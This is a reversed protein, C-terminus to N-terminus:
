ESATETGGNTGRNEIGHKALLERWEEEPGMMSYNVGVINWGLRKSSEIQSEEWLHAVYRSAEDTLVDLGTMMMSYRDLELFLEFNERPSYHVPCCYGAECQPEDHHRERDRTCRERVHGIVSLDFINEFAALKRFDPQIVWKILCLDSYQVFRAAVLDRRLWRRMREELGPLADIEVSEIVENVSYRACTEQVYRIAERISIRFFERKPNVRHSQLLSHLEREAASADSVVQDYIVEYETPVGTARSLERARETSERTTRGIKLVGPILPNALIYIVGRSSESM